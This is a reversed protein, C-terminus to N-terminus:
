NASIGFTRNSRATLPTGIVAMGANFRNTPSMMESASPLFSMNGPPIGTSSPLRSLITLGCRPVSSILNLQASRHFPHFVSFSLFRLFVSFFLPSMWLSIRVRCYSSSTLRPSPSPPSEDSAEESSPSTVSTSSSGLPSSVRLTIFPVSTSSTTSLSLGGPTGTRSPRTPALLERLPSIFSTTTTSEISANSSFNVNDNGSVSLDSLTEM